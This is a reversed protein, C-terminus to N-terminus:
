QSVLFEREAELRKGIGTVRFRCRATYNQGPKRRAPDKWVFRYTRPTEPLHFLVGEPHLRDLVRNEESFIVIEADPTLAVNSLNDLRVSFVTKGKYETVQFHSLVADRLLYRSTTLSLTTSIRLSQSIGPSVAGHDLSGADFVVAGYFGGRIRAPPSATISVIRSEGKRLVISAPELTTWNQPSHALEPADSFLPVGTEPDMTLTLIRCYLPVTEPGHNDITINLNLTKGPELTREIIPPTIGLNQSPVSDAWLLYLIGASVTLIM